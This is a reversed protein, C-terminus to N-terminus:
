ESEDYLRPDFDIYKIDKQLTNLIIELIDYYEKNSLYGQNSCYKLQSYIIGIDPISSLLVNAKMNPDGVLKIASRAVSKWIDSNSLSSAYKEREQAMKRFDSNTM